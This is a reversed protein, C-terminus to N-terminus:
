RAKRKTKIPDRWYVYVTNGTNPNTFKKIQRFGCRLLPTRWLKTQHQSITAIVAERIPGGSNHYQSILEAKISKVRDAITDGDYDFYFDQLIYIGCCGPFSELDM